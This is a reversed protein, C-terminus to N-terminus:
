TTNLSRTSVCPKFELKQLTEAAYKGLSTLRTLKLQIQQCNLCKLVMKFPQISCCRDGIVRLLSLVSLQLMDYNSALLTSM